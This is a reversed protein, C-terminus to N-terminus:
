FNILKSPVFVRDDPRLEVDKGAMGKELVEAVDITITDNNSASTGNQRTVKVHRKDAFESFGGARMIAKSVTFVEDTPIDLYGPLKVKGSLYVRGRTKNLIDVGLLVTAHYYYKKELLAKLEGALQLCTKGVAQIRGLYPIVLEGSDTVFLPIPDNREDLIKDEEIKFSVKDGVGLKHENDLTDVAVLKGDELGLVSNSEASTINTSAVTQTAVRNLYDKATPSLDGVSANTPEVAEVSGSVLMVALRLLLRPLLREQATRARKLLMRGHQCNPTVSKHGARFSVTFIGKSNQKRIRLIPALQALWISVNTIINEYIYRSCPGGATSPHLSAPSDRLSIM